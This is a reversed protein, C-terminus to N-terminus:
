TAAAKLGWSFDRTSVETVHQTSGLVMNRRPANHGNFIGIVGEPISIVVEALQVV